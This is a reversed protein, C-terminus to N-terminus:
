GKLNQDNARPQSDPKSGLEQPARNARDGTANNARGSSGDKVEKPSIM